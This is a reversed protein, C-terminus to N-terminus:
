IHSIVNTHVVAYQEIRSQVFSIGGPHLCSLFEHELLLMTIAEQIKQRCITVGDQHSYTVVQDINTLLPPKTDNYVRVQARIVQHHLGKYITLGHDRSNRLFIGGSDAARVLAHVVIPSGFICHPFKGVERSRGLYSSARMIDSQTQVLDSVTVLIYLAKGLPDTLDHLENTRVFVPLHRTVGKM